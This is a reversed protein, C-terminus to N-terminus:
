RYPSTTIRLLRVAFMPCNPLMTVVAKNMEKKSPRNNISQITVIKRNAFGQMEALSANRAPILERDTTYQVDVYSPLKTNQTTIDTPRM